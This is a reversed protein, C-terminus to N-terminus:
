SVIIYLCLGVVVALVIATVGRVIAVAAAGLCHWPGPIAAAVRVTEDALRPDGSAIPEGLRYAAAAIAAVAMDVPCNFWEGELRCGALTRYAEAEVSYGDCRLAGVYAITLPVASATRLQALRESPNSSIGIKLLGHDGRIIYIFSGQLQRIFGARRARNRPSPGRSFEGLRFSIGPRIGLIRPGSIWFRPM